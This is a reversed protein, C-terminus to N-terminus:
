PRTALLGEVKDVGALGRPAATRSLAFDRGSNQKPLFQFMEFVESHWGPSIDMDAASRLRLHVTSSPKTNAMAAVAPRAWSERKTGDVNASCNSFEGGHRVSRLAQSPPGTPGQVGRVCGCHSASKVCQRASRRM